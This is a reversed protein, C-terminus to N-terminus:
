WEVIVAGPAGNGGKGALGKVAGTHDKVPDSSNARGGGGGAGFYTGHGAQECKAPQGPIYGYERETVTVKKENKCDGEGLSFGRNDYLCGTDKDIFCRYDNPNALNLSSTELNDSMVSVECSAVTSSNFDSSVGNLSAKYLFVDKLYNYYATETKPINVYGSDPLKYNSNKAEPLFAYMKNPADKITSSVDMYRNTDSECTREVCVTEEHSVDKYGYGGSTAGTCQPGPTGGGRNVWPSNAGQEPESLDQEAKGGAGGTGIIELNAHLTDNLKFIALGGDAEDKAIPAITITAPGKISSVFQNRLNGAKGGTGHWKRLHVVM